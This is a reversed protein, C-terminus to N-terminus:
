GGRTLKIPATEALNIEAAWIQQWFPGFFTILKTAFDNFQQGHEVLLRAIMVVLKDLRYLNSIQRHNFYRNVVEIVGLSRLKHIARWFTRKSIQEDGALDAAKPYTKGYYCYLRLLGFIADRERNELGLYVLLHRIQDHRKHFLGTTLIRRTRPVGYGERERVGRKYYIRLTINHNSPNHHAM